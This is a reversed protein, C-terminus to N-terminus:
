TRAAVTHIKQWSRGGDETRLITSGGNVGRFAYALTTSVADLQYGDADFSLPLAQWSRGGDSTRYLRDFAGRIRGPAAAAVWASRPGAIAVAVARGADPGSGQWHAGGDSTWYVRVLPRGSGQEPETFGNLYLAGARASSFRPASVDCECIAVGPLPLRHWTRGGDDTRYLFPAGGACDGGAFGRTPTAFGFGNKDCSFPLM